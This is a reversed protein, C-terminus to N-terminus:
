VPASCLPSLLVCPVRTPVVLSLKELKPASSSLPLKVTRSCLGVKAVVPPPIPHPVLPGLPSGLVVWVTPIHLLTITEDLAAAYLKPLLNKSISKLGQLTAVTASCLAPTGLPALSSKPRYSLLFAVELPQLLTHLPRLPFREIRLADSKGM